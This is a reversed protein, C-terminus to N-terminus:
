GIGLYHFLVVFVSDALVILFIGSVVSTTTSKGVGMAGGRTVLGRYCGVGAILLGFIFAKMVGSFVDWLVISKQLQSFFAGPSIDLGVIAVIMGGIIGFADAFLTLLPLTLMVAFLRPMVLYDLPDIRMVRLADVEDSINMTGLEAAFASGTRGAMLIAAILPGMERTMGIGVLNAIYIGAGFQRLQIASSFATVLGILTSMLAVIPLAEAGTQQILHVVEGWRIRHPHRLKWSMELTVRGVFSVTDKFEQFEEIVHEGFLQLPNTYYHPPTPMETIENLDVFELLKVSTNDLTVIEINAAKENIKRKLNIVLAAISSDNTHTKSFDLKILQDSSSEKLLKIIEVYLDNLNLLNVEGSISLLVTGNSQESIEFGYSKSPKKKDKHGV